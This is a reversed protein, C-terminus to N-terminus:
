VILYSKTMKENRVNQSIHQNIWESESPMSNSIQMSGETM